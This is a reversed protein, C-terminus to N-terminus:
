SVPSLANPGATLEVCYRVFSEIDRERVGVSVLVSLDDLILCVSRQTERSSLSARLAEFLGRLSGNSSVALNCVYWTM